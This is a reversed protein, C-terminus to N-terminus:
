IVHYYLHDSFILFDRRVDEFAKFVFVFGPFGQRIAVRTATFM